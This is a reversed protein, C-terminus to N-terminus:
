NEISFSGGQASVTDNWFIYLKPKIYTPYLAKTVYFQTSWKQKVKEGKFYPNATGTDMYSGNGKEDFLAVYTNAYNMGSNFNVSWNLKLSEVVATDPISDLNTLDWYGKQSWTNKGSYGYITEPDSPGANTFTSAFSINPLIFFLAVTALSIFSILKKLKYGCERLNKLILNEM